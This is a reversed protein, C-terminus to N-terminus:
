NRRRGLAAMSCSQEYPWPGIRDTTDSVDVFFLVSVYPSRSEAARNKLATTSAVDEKAAGTDVAEQEFGQKEKGTMGLKEAAEGLMSKGSEVGVMVVSKLHNCQTLPCSQDLALIIGSSNYVHNFEATSEQM